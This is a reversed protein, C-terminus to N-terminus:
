DIQNMAKLVRPDFETLKIAELINIRDTDSLYKLSELIQKRIRPDQDSSFEVVKNGWFDSNDTSNLLLKLAKVRTQYPYDFSTLREALQQSQTTTDQPIVEKLLAIAKTGSSDIRSLRETASLKRSLDAVNLFSKLAADFVMSSQTVEMKQQLLGPVSEDETYYKLASLSAVQIDESDNNLEQIFTLETGTAGSTFDGLTKLLAAKVENNVENELADKLALQLDPNETHHSLLNAATKRDQVQESRLQSLLFMIPFRRLEINEIDTSGSSFSVYETTPALPILVTDRKGTFTAETTTRDEFTVVDMSLSQLSEGEINKAEFYLIANSNVEDFELDLIYLPQEIESVSDIEISELEYESLPIGTSEYWHDTYYDFRVVGSENKILDPLSNEITKSLFPESLRDDSNIKNWADVMFLSDNNQILQPEFNLKKFAARKILEYEASLKETRQYEGFWQAIIGRQLQTILSGRNKSLYVIGSGHNKIDWLDDEIVVVTLTEWPYEFLFGSEAEKKIRIASTLLEQHESDTILGDEFSVRVKQIGSQAEKASFEGVAINLGTAPIATDVKWSVTKQEASTVQDNIQNGNFIVDLDAPITIAADITLEVRPHDYIPLWYRLAKPNLSSWLTGHRNKHIGYNSNGQWTVGLESENTMSLTDDSLDIILSDGSVMFDKESGDFTIADIELAAAHLIVQTQGPIKASISYTAVGRLIGQYTDVTLDLDLHNFSYPLKPNQDYDFDTTTECQQFQSFLFLVLSFFLTFKSKIM